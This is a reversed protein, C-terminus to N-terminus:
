LHISFDGYRFIGSGQRLLGGAEIGAFAEAVDRAFSPDLDTRHHGPFIRSVGFGCVRKVSGYFALPDTSPYYADLKGMYILDGTFMMGRDPDFFCCHGPSHGPTHVTVLSRGGLDTVDGDSLIGNAGGSYVSYGDPDFGKPFRCPLATLYRIVDSRSLPFSGSLWGAEEKHIRVDGFLGHGGIHDWHAHTTLVTVPLSTLERVVSGIDSVGLGTDILAARETGMVLYCNTEEYHKRESIVVTDHDIKETTFWNKDM